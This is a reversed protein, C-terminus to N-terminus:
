APPPSPKPPRARRSPRKIDKGYYKRLEDLDNEYTDHLVDNTDTRSAYENYWRAITAQHIGLIESVRKRSIYGEDIAMVAIYRAYNTARDTVTRLTELLLETEYRRMTQPRARLPRQNNIQLSIGYYQDLPLQVLLAATTFLDLLDPNERNVVDEILRKRSRTNLPRDQPPQDDPTDRM